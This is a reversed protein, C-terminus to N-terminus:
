GCLARGHEAALKSLKDAVGSRRAQRMGYKAFLGNSVLLLNKRPPAWFGNSTHPSYRVEGGDPAVDLWGTFTRISLGVLQPRFSHALFGARRGGPPLLGPAVVLRIGSTDHGAVGVPVVVPMGDAGKYALLRHPLSAVQAASKAVDVRPGTGNKPPRQTKAVGAPPSGCVSTTGPRTPKSTATGRRIGATLYTNPHGDLSM